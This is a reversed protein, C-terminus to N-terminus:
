QARLHQTGYCDAVLMSSIEVYFLQLLQGIPHAVRQRSRLIRVVPCSFFNTVNANNKKKAARFKKESAQNANRAVSAVSGM